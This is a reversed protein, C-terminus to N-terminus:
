RGPEVRTLEIGLTRMPGQRDFSEKVTRAFDQNKPEFTPM